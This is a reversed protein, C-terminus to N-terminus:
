EAPTHRSVMWRSLMMRQRRDQPGLVIAGNEVQLDTFSGHPVELQLDEVAKVDGFHKTLNELRISAM